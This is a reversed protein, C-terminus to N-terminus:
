HPARKNMNHRYTLATIIGLMMFIIPHNSEEANVYKITVWVCLSIAVPIALEIEPDSRDDKSVIRCAYYIAALVLGFVFLFGMIGWDLLVKLFYSDIVLMGNPLRYQLVKGANETGHGFPNSLIHPIGQHWQDHRAQTSSATEAGGWVRNRIKGVFFTSALVLAAGIPFSLVVAPGILSDKRDRWRRLGWVGLMLTTAVLAGVAASRSGSLLAVYFLFAFAFGAFIRLRMEYTDFILFYLVFPFVLGIFEGFGLPSEFTTQSRYIDTFRRGSGQLLAIVSPDEVKLFSPISYAWLIHRYHAEAVAMIGLLIMMSCLLFVWIRVSNKKRFFYVSIIYISFWNTFILVTKQLSQSMYKSMPLTLFMIAILGLMLRWMWPTAGLCAKIDERFSHSQSFSVALLVIMPFVMLRILTIWPLGPLSIALYNPWMLIAVFLAVFLREMTRTPPHQSNPLAWIVLGILVAPVFLFVPILHPAFFAFALGQFLSLSGVVAFILRTTRRHARRDGDDTYAMLRAKSAPVAIVPAPTVRTERPRRLRFGDFPAGITALWNFRLGAV